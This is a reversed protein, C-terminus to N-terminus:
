DYEYAVIAALSIAATEARLIRRGLSIATGGAEIIRAAEDRTFGGEAGVILAIKNIGTALTGKLPTDSDEYAFIINEYESLREVMQSFSDPLCINMPLTRGCQKAAEASIKSMRIRAKEASDGNPRKVCRQSFFPRLESVGLETAKQAVLELKDARTYAAFLTVYVLPAGQCARQEEIEALVEGAKVSIVKCVCEENERPVLIKDGVNIRVVRVAHEAEEGTLRVTDGEFSDAFFRRM